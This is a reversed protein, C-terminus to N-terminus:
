LMSMSCARAMKEKGRIIQLIHSYYYYSRDMREEVATEEELKAPGINVVVEPKTVIVRLEKDGKLEKSGKLDKAVQLEKPGNLEKAEKAEQAQKERLVPRRKLLPPKKMVVAPSGKDLKADRLINKDDCFVENDEGQRHVVLQEQRGQIVVERAKRQVTEEKSRGVEGNSRQMLMEEKLSGRKLALGADELKYVM